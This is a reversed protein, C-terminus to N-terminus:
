NHQAGNHRASGSQEFSASVSAGDRVTLVFDIADSRMFCETHELAENADSYSTRELVLVPAHVEIHLAQAIKRDAREARLKLHARDVRHGVSELLMYGPNQEAQEHSISRTAPHLYAFTFAIPTKGVSWLRSLRMAESFGLTRATQADVSTWQYELLEASSAIGAKTFQAFMSELITPDHHLRPMAVFTGAGARRVILEKKELLALATRITVRSVRFVRALENEGSMREGPRLEGSAIRRELEDAVTRYRIAGAAVQPMM